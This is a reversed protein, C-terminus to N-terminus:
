ERAWLRILLGPTAASALFAASNALVPTLEATRSVVPGLGFSVFLSGWLPAFLLLWVWQRSVIGQPPIRSVFGAVVGGAISCWLTALYQESPLGPVVKCGEDRGLCEVLAAMAGQLAASEGQERVTFLNGFRSELETWFPRRLKALVEDGVFPVSLINPASPDAVVVVTRNDLSGWLRRPTPGDRSADVYYQTFLRVHWGTRRDLEALQQSLADRAEAKLVAAGDYSPLLM